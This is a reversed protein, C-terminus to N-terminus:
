RPNGERSPTTGPERPPSAGELRYFDFTFIYFCRFSPPKGLGGGTQDGTNVNAQAFRPGLGADLKHGWFPPESRSFLGAKPSHLRFNQLNRPLPIQHLVHFSPRNQHFIGCFAAPQHLSASLSPLLAFRFHFFHLCMPFDPSGHADQIFFATARLSSGANLLKPTSLPVFLYERSKCRFLRCTPPFECHSLPWQLLLIKSNFTAYPHTVALSGHSHTTLRSKAEWARRSNTAGSVVNPQTGLAAELRHGGLLSESRSSLDRFSTAHNRPNPSPTQRSKSCFLLLSAFPVLPPIPWSHYAPSGVSVPFSLEQRSSNALPAHNATLMKM